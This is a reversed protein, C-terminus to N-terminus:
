EPDEALFSLITEVDAQPDEYFLSAASGELPLLRGNPLAAALRRSVDLPIQREREGQRHLVLAPAKV